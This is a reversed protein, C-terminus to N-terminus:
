RRCKFSTDPVRNSNLVTRKDKWGLLLASQLRSPQSRDPHNSPIGSLPGELLAMMKRLFPAWRAFM